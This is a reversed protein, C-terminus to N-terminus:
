AVEGSRLIEVARDIRELSRDRGLLVLVDFIGPSASSGTLALRLPQFLKGAGIELEEALGRSVEELTAQNWDSSSLVGRLRSLRDATGSPDKAWQKKVAKPDYELTDLFYPEAQDLLDEVTRSRIKLLDVLFPLEITESGLGKQV